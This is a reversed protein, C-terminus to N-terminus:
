KAQSYLASVLSEMDPIHDFAIHDNIIISPVAPMQGCIKSLEAQRLLGERSGIDVVEWTLAVGTLEPQLEELMAVALDCLMCGKAKAVIEVRVPRLNNEM